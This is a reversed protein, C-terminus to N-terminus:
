AMRLFAFAKMPPGWFTDDYLLAIQSHEIHGGKTAYTKIANKAKDVPVDPFYFVRTDAVFRLRTITVILGLLADSNEADCLLVDMFADKASEGLYVNCWGIATLISHDEPNSQRASKYAERSEHFLGEKFLLDGLLVYAPSKESTKVSEVADLKAEEPQDLQYHWVARLYYIFSRFHDAERLYPHGIVQTIESIALKFNERVQARLAFALRTIWHDPSVRELIQCHEHLTGEELQGQELDYLMQCLRMQVSLPAVSLAQTQLRRSEEPRSEALVRLLLLLRSDPRSALLYSARTSLSSTDDVTDIQILLDTIEMVWALDNNAMPTGRVNRDFHIKAEHYRGTAALACSVCCEGWLDRRTERILRAQEILFDGQSITETAHLWIEFVELGPQDVMAQTARLFADKARGDGIMEDILAYSVQSKKQTEALTCGLVSIELESAVNPSLELRSAVTRLHDVESSSVVKDAIAVKLAEIYSAHARRQKVNEFGSSAGPYEVAGLVTAFDATEM